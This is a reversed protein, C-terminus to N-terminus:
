KNKKLLDVKMKKLAKLDKESLKCKDPSDSYFWMLESNKANVVMKNCHKGGKSFVYYLLNDEQSKVARYIEERGVEVVEADFLNVADVKGKIDLMKDEVLLKRDLLLNRDSPYDKMMRSSNLTVAQSAYNFYNNLMQVARTMEGDWDATDMKNSCFSYAVMDEKMIRKKFKRAVVLGNIDEESTCLKAKIKSGVSKSFLLFAVDKKNYKKLENEEAYEKPGFTWYREVANYLSENFSSDQMWVVVLTTEKFADIEDKKKFTGFQAISLTGLACMMLFLISKKM